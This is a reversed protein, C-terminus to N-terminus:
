VIVASPFAMVRGEGLTKSVRRCEGCLRYFRVDAAVGALEIVRGQLEDLESDSDVVVEFVSRQVREGHRLLAKGVRTRVNDDEIDFCVLWTKM